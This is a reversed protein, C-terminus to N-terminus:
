EIPLPIFNHRNKAFDSLMNMMQKEQRKKAKAKVYQPNHYECYWKGDIEIVAQRPCRRPSRSGTLQECWRRGMDILVTQIGPSRAVVIEKLSPDKRSRKM